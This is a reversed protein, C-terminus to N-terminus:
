WGSVGRPSSVNKEWERSDLVLLVLLSIWALKVKGDRVLQPTSATVAPLVV